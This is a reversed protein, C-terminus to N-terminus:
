EWDPMLSNTFLETDGETGVDTVYISPIAGSNNNVRTFIIQGESPSYSPFLDNQGAAVDTIIQQTAGTTVNYEFIRSNFVRYNPNESQDIDRSYIIKTGNADIDLGSFGGGFGSAVEFLETGTTLSIAFIRVSYGNVDNTKLIAMNSNFAPTAVESIIANDSATYIAVNGGGDNDITLLKNFNTYLLREGNNVWTYQLNEQRFGAVPILSTVQTQNVGSIDMTFIHTDGGVNRLFAIKNVDNNRKPTFSNTSSNTLPLVNVDTEDADDRAGSYIVNNGDIRKVFLFENDEADFTSFASIPSIVEENFDDKASVQWFYITSLNLNSVTAITDNTIDIEEMENTTGNRLQLTYFIDDDEADDSNWAFTIELPLDEDGDSPFILEPVSPADNEDGALRLDFAVSSTQSELVEVAEFSTTYLDLDAQVSYNGVSVNELLFTGDVDTFTTNSAPNTTIKVNDLPENNEESIVTGSVSGRKETEITDESCSVMAIIFVFLLISTHLNRM